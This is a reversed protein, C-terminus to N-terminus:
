NVQTSKTSSNWKIDKVNYEKPDEKTCIVRTTHGCNSLKAALKLAEKYKDFDLWVYITGGGPLHPIFSDPLVSGFLSITPVETAVKIASVIDEVLCVDCGHTDPVGRNIVMPQRYGRTISKPLVGHVNREEFFVLKNNKFIPFVHRNTYHNYFFWEHVVDKDIGYKAFWEITSRPFGKTWQLKFDELSDEDDEKPPPRHKAPIVFSCSFCYGGGDPYIALNDGHRDRGM